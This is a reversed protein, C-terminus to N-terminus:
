SVLAAMKGAEAEPTQLAMLLFQMAQGDLAMGVAVQAVLVMVMIVVAAPEAATTVLIVLQHPPQGLQILIQAQEV